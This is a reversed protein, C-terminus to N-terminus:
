RKMLDPPCDEPRTGWVSQPVDTMEFEMLGGKMIDSHSIYNFTYNQGNLKISKIYRKSGSVGPASMVFTKGNELHFEVRQFTPASIIYYESGPCVPYFGIAAFMYWASMQGADDNGSLGGSSDLYETDM